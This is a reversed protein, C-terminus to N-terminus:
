ETPLGSRGFVASATLAVAVADYEDDYGKTEKLRAIHQVMKIMQEKTARGNGTIAVKIEGPGFELVRVGLGTVAALLAGRTEAVRMATKQNKTFFLRELVCVDPNYKQIWETVGSVVAVLRQEFADTSSTTICGSALVVEHASPACELVAIGCRDYGPDIGLIKM